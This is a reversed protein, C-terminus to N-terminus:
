QKKPRGAKKKEPVEAPEDAISVEEAPEYKELKAQLIGIETELKKITGSAEMDEEKVLKYLQPWRIVWKQALEIPVFAVYENEPDFLVGSHIHRCKKGDKIPPKGLFRVPTLPSTYQM